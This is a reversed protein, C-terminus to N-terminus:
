ETQLCVKERAFARYRTILDTADLGAAAQEASYHVAIGKGDIIVQPRTEDSLHQSSYRTGNFTNRVAAADNGWFCGFHQSIPESPNVWLPFKYHGLDNDELHHLFSYHQQAGVTWDDLTPGTDTYVSAAIPDRNSSPDHSLLWRHGGFPPEFGRIIKFSPPGQWRPLNSPRWDDDPQPKSRSPQGARHLEPLYPLAVGPHSHLSALAAENVVNASVVLSDPNDLKTKVITPIANDELFVTDGDIRIYMVNGAVEWEGDDGPPAVTYEPTQNIISYLWQISTPDETQPVFVVQDLFGEHQVLNNQLYCDLIATREHNHYPVLAVIKFGQPKPYHASAQSFAFFPSIEKRFLLSSIDFHVLRPNFFALVTFILCAYGVVSWLLVLTWDRWFSKRESNSEVDRLNRTRGRILLERAM